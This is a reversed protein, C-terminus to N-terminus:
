FFKPWGPLALFALKMMFFALVTLQSAPPQLFGSLKAPLNSASNVIFTFILIINPRFIHNQASSLDM